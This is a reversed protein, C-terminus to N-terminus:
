RGEKIAAPAYHRGEIGYLERIEEASMGRAAQWDVCRRCIGYGTDRNWWQEWRGAPEGCCCCEMNRKKTM